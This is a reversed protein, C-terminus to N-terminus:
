EELDGSENNELLLAQLARLQVDMRGDITGADTELICGGYKVHDDAVVDLRNTLGRSLYEKAETILEYDKPSVKIVMHMRDQAHSIVERVMHTIVDKNLANKGLIKCISEFVLAIIENEFDDIERAKTETLTDLLSLMSNNRESFKEDFENSISTRVEQEIKERYNEKEEDLIEREGSQEEHIKNLRAKELNLQDLLAVYERYKIEVDTETIEEVQIPSEFSTPSNKKDLDKKLSTKGDTKLLVSKESLDPSYLVHDKNMVLTEM